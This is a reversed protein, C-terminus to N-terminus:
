KKKRKKVAKIIDIVRDCVSCSLIFTHNKSDCFVDVSALNHCRPKLRTPADLEKRKETASIFLHECPAM